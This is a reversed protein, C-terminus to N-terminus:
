SESEQLPLTIGMIEMADRITALLTWVDSPDLRGITGIRFTDAGTLKGPYIVQGRQSLLEYFLHFDFRSSPPCHFTQIVNGGLGPELYERFGMRRMGECLTQRNAAYRKQRGEVGGEDWLEDLARRFALLAHTPPTFRFQGNTELGKWQDYLDLSLSRAWGRTKELEERRALVFSFGPVGEICKNASSVLWDVHWGELDVPVAGFSSMADLIFRKGAEHVVAGIESVPNMLGTTTECHIMAVHTLGPSQELHAAVRAPDPLSDEPFDISEVPIGLVQAMKVLRRGYAGNVVVLLGGERPIGTGLTAELGFTGSGQMLVAEWQAPDVGALRLLDQRIDNIVQIFREDRSGIDHLMAQKVTQSTTLPGPTFLVPDKWGELRKRHLM